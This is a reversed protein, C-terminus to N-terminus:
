MTVADSFAPAQAAIHVSMSNADAQQITQQMASHQHNMAPPMVFMPMRAHQQLLVQLLICM